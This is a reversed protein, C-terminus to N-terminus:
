GQVRFPGITLARSLEYLLLSGAVAANLSETVEEMPLSIRDRCSDLIEPPIGRSENGIVLGWPLEAFFSSPLRGHRIVAAYLPIQSFVTHSRFEQFDAYHSSRIHLAAGASSRLAKASLPDSTMGVTAVVTGGFALFTRILTGCNGPDQLDALVLVIGSLDTPSHLQATLSKQALGLIGQSQCTDSLTQLVNEEVQLFRRTQQRLCHLLPANDPRNEFRPTLLVTEFSLGARIAEHILKPGEIPFHDSHRFNSQSLFHRLKRIYPNGPSRLIIKEEPPCPLACKATGSAPEMADTVKGSMASM